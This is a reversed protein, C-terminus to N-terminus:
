VLRSLVLYSSFSALRPFNGMPVRHLDQFVNPSKNVTVTHRMKPFSFPIESKYTPCSVLDSSDPSLNTTPCSASIGLVLFSSFPGFVQRPPTITRSNEDVDLCKFLPTERQLVKTFASEFESLFWIDPCGIGPFHKVGLHLPRGCATAKDVVCLSGSIRNKCRSLLFIALM